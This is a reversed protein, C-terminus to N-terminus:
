NYCLNDQNDLLKKRLILKYKTLEYPIFQNYKKILLSIKPYHITDNIQKDWKEMFNFISNLICMTEIQVDRHLYKELLTPYDDPSNCVLCNYVTGGNGGKRHANFIDGIDNTFFYTLSQIVKQRERYVDLADNELLTGIWTNPNYVLNAVIFDQAEDKNTVRRSLKYFHWKDKRRDFADISTTAKGHYKFYNYTKSNFHLKLSNFLCFAEYGTM